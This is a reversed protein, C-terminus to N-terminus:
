PHPYGWPLRALRPGAARGDEAAARGREAASVRARWDHRRGWVVYACPAPHRHQSHSPRCSPSPPVAEAGAHASQQRKQHYIRTSFPGLYQRPPADSARNERSCHKADSHSNTQQLCVIMVSSASQADDSGRIEGFGGKLLGETMEHAAKFFDSPLCPPFFLFRDAAIIVCPARHRPLPREEEVGPVVGPGDSPVGLTTPWPVSM